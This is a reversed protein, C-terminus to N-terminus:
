YNVLSDSCLTKSVGQYNYNFMMLMYLLCFDSAMYWCSSSLRTITLDGCSKLTSAKWRHDMYSQDLDKGIQHLAAAM